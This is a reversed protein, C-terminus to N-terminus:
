FSHAVKKRSSLNNANNVYIQLIQKLSHDDNFTQQIKQHANKGLQKAAEPNQAIFLIKKALDGPKKIDFLLGTQGDDILWASTGYNIGIVPRAFQMAETMILGFSEMGTSPFIVASTQQYYNALNEQWGVFEIQLELKLEVTLQRLSKEAPGKGAIVLRLEPDTKAAIAFERILLDTGKHAGLNGAFLFQKANTSPKPLSPQHVFPPIYIAAEFKNKQLFNTLLPSPALYSAVTKKSKRRIKYFSYAMLLYILKNFKVQHQWFCKATIGSSCPTKDRHINQATPCLYSFDHVTQITKYGDLASLVSLSFQKNNHLHVINPKIKHLLNRIKWYVIPHFACRWLLKALKSKAGKIVYLNKNIYTTDGFALAFVELSPIQELKEKLLFFYKEAGGCNDANDNILLIRM